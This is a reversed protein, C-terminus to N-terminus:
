FFLEVIARYMRYFHCNHVLAPACLFIAMGNSIHGTLCFISTDQVAKRTQWTGYKRESHSACIKEEFTM